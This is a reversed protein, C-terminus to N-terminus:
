MFPKKIAAAQGCIGEGFAIRTHETPEGVFPGLILEKKTQDAIYFGVWDYYPIEDKLLRSVGALKEDRKDKSELIVKVKNIIQTIEEKNNVM